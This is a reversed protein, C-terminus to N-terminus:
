VHARGIQRSIPYVRLDDFVFEDYLLTGTTTSLTNKTGLVGTTVAIDTLSTITAVQTGDIYLTGVGTANTEIDAMLEVCYWRGKAPLTYFVTPAVKGVGIDLVDTAATYRLGVVREVTAAAQLEFINWTDDATADVNAGVYLYFRTWRSVTDAIDLDGETVTHANTDGMRVRMSFAGRFPAAPGIGNPGQVENRALTSFHPFDLFSGTDQESDWESNDGQEFNRDVIFPFAM